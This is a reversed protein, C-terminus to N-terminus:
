LDFTHFHIMFHTFPSVSIFCSEVHDKVEPGEFKKFNLNGLHLIAALIKLIEDQQKVPIGLSDLARLTDDFMKLNNMDDTGSCNGQSLYFFEPESLHFEPFRNEASRLQYFINFNQERQTQQFYLNFYM